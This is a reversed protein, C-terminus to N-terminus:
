AGIPPLGPLAAALRADLERATSPRTPTGTLLTAGWGTRGDDDQAEVLLTDFRTV